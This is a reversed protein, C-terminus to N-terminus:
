AVHGFIIALVGGVFPCLLWSLIGFVLSAVASGNTRPGYVYMSTPYPPSAQQYPLPLQASPQQLPVPSPGAGPMPAWRTGDWWWRGDPSVQAGGPPTESM